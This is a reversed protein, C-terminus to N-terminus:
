VALFQTQHPPMMRGASPILRFVGGPPRAEHRGAKDVGVAYSRCAVAVDPQQAALKGLAANAFVYYGTTQGLTESFVLCRRYYDAAQVPDQDRTQLLYGLHYAAM